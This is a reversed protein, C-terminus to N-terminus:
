RRQVSGKRTAIFLMSAYLMIFISATGMDRQVLLLLTALGMVFATPFLFPIIRDRSSIPLRDALYAALYGILLLKLPESPQLYIGCCGLWLRPGFGVPNKGFILTLTTLFLGSFLLLYKYRRVIKLNPSTRLGLIFVGLAAVIWTTQRIGLASDLRWISLMGWGTLIAAIPLLYPDRDPMARSLERQALAFILAWIALGAWHSWRYDVAWSRQRVAPALTLIIAYLTLFLAALKLLRSEVSKNM